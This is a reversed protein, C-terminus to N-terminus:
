LSFYMYNEGFEKDDPNFYFKLMEYVYTDEILHWDRIAPNTNIEILWVNDEKDILIDYGLFMFVNKQKSTNEDVFVKMTNLIIDFIQGENRKFKDYLHECDTYVVNKNKIMRTVYKEMDIEFINKIGIYSKFRTNDILIDSVGHIDKNISWMDYKEKACRLIPTKDVIMHINEDSNTTYLMVNVRYEYKRGDHLDINSIYKQVINNRQKYRIADKLSKYIRLSRGGYSNQHKLIWIPSHNQRYKFLLEDPTLLPLGKVSTYTIPMYRFITEGFMSYMNDYMKKKDTLKDHYSMHATITTSEKKWVLSLNRDTRKWIFNADEWETVENFTMHLVNEVLKMVILRTINTQEDEDASFKDKRDIFCRFSM